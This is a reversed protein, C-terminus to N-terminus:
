PTRAVYMETEGGFAGGNNTLNVSAAFVQPAAMTFAAAFLSAALTKKLLKM